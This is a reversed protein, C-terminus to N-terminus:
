QPRLSHATKPTTDRSVRNQRDTSKRPKDWSNVQLYKRGDPGKYRTILGQQSLRMLGGHTRVSAESFTDLPYLDCQILQPEDRGVGNDDVYSWLGIFLLRDEISLAAIDESRWFEPKITRIRM